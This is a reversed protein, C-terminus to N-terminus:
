QPKAASKSKGRKPASPSGFTPNGPQGPNIVAALQNVEADTFVLSVGIIAGVSLDAARRQITRRSCGIKDAAEACSYVKRIETIKKPM